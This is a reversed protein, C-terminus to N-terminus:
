YTVTYNYQFPLNVVRAGIAAELIPAVATNPVNITIDNPATYTVSIDYTETIGPDIGDAGDMFRKVRRKLWPTNYQFGDGKFFNWTLIRKFYDDTVTYVTTPTSIVNQNYPIENYPETNYAGDTTFGVGDSLTPRLMGYIGLATWDLMAGSQLTYIPLNVLNFTNLYEQALTNYANVFGQLDEDDAYQRYLYSPIIQLLM